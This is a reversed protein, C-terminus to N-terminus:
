YFLYVVSLDILYEQNLMNKLVELLRKEKKDIRIGKKDPNYRIFKTPLGLGTAINNMRIIECEKDYQEHGNEDCELVVFYTGCDMMFDPRYRLCCDNKFQLDQVFPIEHKLLLDRVRNERTKRKATKNPDCYSCLYDNNKKVSGFLRCLRCFYKSNPFCTICQYKQKDHCCIDKGKCDRCISKIKNHSCFRSSGCDKCSSPDRDHECRRMCDKCRHRVKKHECIGASFPCEKCFKKINKHECLLHPRCITCVSRIKRHLCISGGGCGEKCRSKLKGHKCVQSGGCDKCQIKIRGHSCVSGGKCKTCQYKNVNHECRPHRYSKHEM